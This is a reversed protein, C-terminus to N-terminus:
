WKKYYVDDRKSLPNSMIYTDRYEYQYQCLTWESTPDLKPANSLDNGYGAYKPKAESIEAWLALETTNALETKCKHYM